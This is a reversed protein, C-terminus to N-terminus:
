IPNDNVEAVEKGEQGTVVVVTGREAFFHKYRRQAEV